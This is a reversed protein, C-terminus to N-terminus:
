EKVERFKVDPSIRFKFADESDECILQQEILSGVARDVLAAPGSCLTRDWPGARGQARGVSALWYSIPRLQCDCILQNGSIFIQFM